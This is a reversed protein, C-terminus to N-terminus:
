STRRVFHDASVLVAKDSPDYDFYRTFVWGYLQEVYLRVLARAKLRAEEEPPVLFELASATRFGSADLERLAPPPVETRGLVRVEFDHADPDRQAEGYSHWASLGRPRIAGALPSQAVDHLVGHFRREDLPMDTM